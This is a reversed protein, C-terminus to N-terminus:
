KFDRWGAYVRTATTVCCLFAFGYAFASFHSPMLCMLTFCLLTEFAETLGSLYTISKTPSPLVGRKAAMSAYALFSSSTGIFAFLMVAVSLANAAPNAVAFALPVAAYFIFDLTIDLFGGRDSASGIVRAVAGDLADLLRSVLLIVLGATYHRNAILGCGALGILFGAFTIHNAKLGRGALRVAIGDICPKIWAALRADFM